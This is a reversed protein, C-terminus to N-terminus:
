RLVYMKELIINREEIQKLLNMKEERLAEIEITKQRFMLEMKELMIRNEEIQELMIKHEINHRTYETTDTNSNSESSM